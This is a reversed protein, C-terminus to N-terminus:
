RERRPDDENVRGHWDEMMADWAEGFTEFWESENGDLCIFAFGEAENGTLTYFNTM